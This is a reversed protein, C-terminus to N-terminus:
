PAEKNVVLADWAEQETEYAGLHRKHGKKVVSYAIWKGARDNFFVGGDNNVKVKKAKNQHNERHGLERLNVIRNDDRLGNIHDVQRKPWSGFYLLWAIRHVHRTIRKGGVYIDVILYGDCDRYGVPKGARERNFWDCWKQTMPPNNEPTRERTSVVGTDPDYKFRKRIEDEYM